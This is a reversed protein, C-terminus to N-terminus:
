PHVKTLSRFGVLLRLSLIAAKPKKCPRIKAASQLSMDNKCFFRKHKGASSARAPRNSRYTGGLQGAPFDDCLGVVSDGSRWLCARGGNIQFGGDDCFFDIRKLFCPQDIKWMSQKRTYAPICSLFFPATKVQGMRVNDNKRSGRPPKLCIEGAPTRCFRNELM